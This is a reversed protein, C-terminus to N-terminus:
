LGRDVVPLVLFALTGIRLASLRGGADRWVQWPAKAAQCAAKRAQNMPMRPLM